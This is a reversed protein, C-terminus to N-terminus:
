PQTLRLVNRTCIKSLSELYWLGLTHLSKFGRDLPQSDLAKVVRGVTRGISLILQTAIASHNTSRVGLWLIRTRHLGTPDDFVMRRPNHTIDRTDPNVWGYILVQCYVSIATTIPDGTAGQLMYRPHKIRLSNYLHHIYCTQWPYHYTFRKLRAKPLFLM